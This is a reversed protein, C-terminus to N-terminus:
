AQFYVAAPMILHLPPSLVAAPFAAQDAFPATTNCNTTQVPSQARLVRPLSVSDSVKESDSHFDIRPYVVHEAKERFGQIFSWIYLCDVSNKGFTKVVNVM